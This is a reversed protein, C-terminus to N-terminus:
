DSNQGAVLRVESIMHCSAAIDNVMHIHQIKIHLITVQHRLKCFVYM